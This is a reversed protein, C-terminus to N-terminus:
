ERNLFTKVFQKSEEQTCAGHQVALDLDFLLARFISDLRQTKDERYDAVYPMMPCSAVNNEGNEQLCVLCRIGTRCFLNETDELLVGSKKIIRYTFVWKAIDLKIMERVDDVPVRLIITVKQPSEKDKGKDLRFANWSYYDVVTKFPGRM